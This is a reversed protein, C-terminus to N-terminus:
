RSVAAVTTTAAPISATAAPEDGAPFTYRWDGLSLTRVARDHALTGSTELDALPLATRLTLASALLKTQTADYVLVVGRDMARFTYEGAPLEVRGVSVPESLSFVAQDAAAAPVALLTALVALASVRCIVSKM